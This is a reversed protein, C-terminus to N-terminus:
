VLVTYEIHKGTEKPSQRSHAFFYFTMLIIIETDIKDRSWEKSDYISFVFFCRM